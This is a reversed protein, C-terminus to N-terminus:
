LADALSGKSYVIEKKKNMKDILEQQYQDRHRKSAIIEQMKASVEKNNEPLLSKSFTTTFVTKIDKLYENKDKRRFLRM